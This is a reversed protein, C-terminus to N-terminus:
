RPDFHFQVISTTEESAPAYKWQKVAELAFDGLVQNGGVVTAKKVTGAPSLVIEVKVLGGINHEKLISPYKPAVYATRLREAPAAQAPLCAM